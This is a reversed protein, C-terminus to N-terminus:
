PMQKRAIRERRDEIDRQIAAQSVSHAQCEDCEHLIYGGMEFGSRVSATNKETAYVCACRM